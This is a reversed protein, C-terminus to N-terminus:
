ALERAAKLKAEQHKVERSKAEDLWNCMFRDQRDDTVRCTRPVLKM